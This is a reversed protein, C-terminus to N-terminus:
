RRMLRLTELKKRRARAEKNKNVIDTKPRRKAESKTTMTPDRKM